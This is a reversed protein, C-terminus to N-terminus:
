QTPTSSEGFLARLHRNLFRGGPDLRRRAALFRDWDPYLSALEAATRTHIKGWHPRGGADRFIHEVDAFFERSPLRADQHVSITVTPRGCQPSLYADDPAVTRYEVPWAVDPHRARMRDRVARFCEPGREAPVSYEMEHFKHERVSPIVHPAWGIREGPQDPLDDVPADTPDLSKAEVRDPGPIWFFEFHRTAAVLAELEALCADVPLSWVREHLRYAPALRLRARTIVGLAGLSVRAARLLEGDREASLELLEGAGTVLRLGLVQTSLNGLARGTGHTGTGLAGGVSQVDVDGLNEFALGRELLPPGLDHLKSGAWVTAEAAGADASEVGALEDLSVVVGDTEVLPMFSHGSGAVRVTRNESAARRVLAVVEEERRPREIRAPRCRVSGAWSAWEEVM